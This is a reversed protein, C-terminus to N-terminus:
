YYGGSSELLATLFGSSIGFILSVCCALVMSGIAIILCATGLSKSEPDNKFMFVLGVILGVLPIFFSLAYLLFKVCGSYQPQPPYYPQQPPYQQPPYYGM